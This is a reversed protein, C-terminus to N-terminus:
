RPKRPPRRAPRPMDLSRMGLEDLGINANPSSRRRGCACSLTRIHSSCLCLVTRPARKEETSV